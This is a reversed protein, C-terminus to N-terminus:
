SNRRRFESCVIAAATAVNLSDLPYADQPFPPIALKRDILNAVQKSIGNGENGLVVIGHRSLQAKYINEGDMFTGYINTKGKNDALFLALSGRYFITKALAGMTAQIVKPNYPDVTGESFFVYDFGFWLSLRIITGVNGADQLTDLALGLKNEIMEPFKPEKQKFIALVEQPTKQLSIKNIETKSVIYTKFSIEALNEKVWRETAILAYVEWGYKLFEKVAKTGEVFFLKTENRYKKIELSRFLKIQAKSLTNGAVM